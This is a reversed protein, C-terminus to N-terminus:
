FLPLQEKGGGGSEGPTAPGPKPPPPTPEMPAISRTRVKNYSTFDLKDSAMTGDPLIRVHILEGRILDRAAKVFFERADEGAEAFPDVRPLERIVMPYAPEWALGAIEVGNVFTDPEVRLFRYKLGEVTMKRPAHPEQFFHGVAIKEGRKLQRYDASLAEPSLLIEHLESM